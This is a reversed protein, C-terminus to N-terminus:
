IVHISFTANWVGGFHIEAFFQFGLVPTDLGHYKIGLPEPFGHILIRGRYFNKQGFKWTVRGLISGPVEHDSTLWELLQDVFPLSKQALFKSIDVDLAKM